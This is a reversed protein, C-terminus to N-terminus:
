VLSSGDFDGGSVGLIKLITPALDLLSPAHSIKPLNSMFVGPVMDPKMCHDAAWKNTRPTFVPLGFEGLVANDSGRFGLNYSILIDPARSVFGGKYAVNSPIGEGLLQGTEPDTTKALDAIICAKVEEPNDVIGFQERGKQNIFIGSFGAAYAKTNEWDVDKFISGEKQKTVLYGREALWSNVQFERTFSNFGHDSIIFITTDSDVKGLAMSLAVDMLQYFFRISDKLVPSVSPDHLPHSPDFHRWLMHQNQDLVSFYFFMLGDHFNKLEFQFARFNEELLSLSQHYYEDDSLLGNALSKTDAPLGLTSFLGGTAESLERAYEPPSSIPLGPSKPNALLPSIYLELHPQVKRVLIKFIGTVSSLFPISEFSIEKWTSWEGEQLIITEGGINIKVTPNSPDKVGTILAKLSEGSKLFPHPPGVVEFSFKGQNLSLEVLRAGSIGEPRKAGREIVYTTTGYGGSLDPTGMGCIATGLKPGETPFNGPLRYFSSPIGAEDLYSWLPKGGRNPKTGGGFALQYQGLSFHSEPPITKSTSLYLELDRPDRHIFDFIGHRGPNCGTIFSSWAVPSLAPLTTKLTSLLAGSDRFKSFTPMSGEDMFRKLLKPEMGDIGLVLVKKNTRKAPTKTPVFILPSLLFSRRKL